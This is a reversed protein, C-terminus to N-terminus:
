KFKHLSGSAFSIFRAAIRIMEVLFYLYPISGRDVKLGQLPHKPLFYAM